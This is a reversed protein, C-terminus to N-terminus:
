DAFCIARQKVSDAHLHLVHQGPLDAADIVWLAPAFEASKPLLQELRNPARALLAEALRNGPKDPFIALYLMDLEVLDNFFHTGLSVDPILGEHMVALECIVAVNRIEPFTVPVGFSPSTTGWRGPGILLTAQESVGPLQNLRGVLRAITYRKGNPLRAYVSPVVYVIRTIPLLRSQGIIPGSSELYLKDDPLETPPGEIHLGHKSRVQFPRCQLLNIRLDRQPTFNVTFEVDVPNDYATQLTRLMDRMDAPFSGKLLRDFTLVWPFIELGPQAAARERLADDQTAILDLPLDPAARVVQEFPVALHRNQDLDLVDLNRQAYQRVMGPDANLRKDPANLAVLRTYDNEIRDVARTGLGSVLRLFGAQPDIEKDWVYPNFSYAVGAIDPFFYRGHMAGSVRQVLLAMQEDQELLGRHQRYILADRSLASAYIRRVADMFAELREALPGQNPCFVSEYKGSFANGYNDELLSSSRVIIPSQGFYTLMERFQNVLYQPFEGYLLAQQGQELGEFAHDPDRQTRRSWWCGNQVLYTYFVDSGVFFSDHQELRDAWAPNAKVLMARALLMGLTKGGILGSGIMRSLVNILDDLTFYRQALRTYREDRTIAMRLLRNFCDEAERHTLKGSNVDALTEQAHIVTRRWVGPRHLSFELWSQPLNAMLETLTASSTVPKFSDDEWSHLMFMTPSYRNMVKIPQVYLQAKNRYVELIVQATKTINEVTRQMHRNRIMAFYAITEQQRLFPCVIMFFNALMQDSSWDVALESLCDFLFYAGRGAAEADDLIQLVFQEFGEEPQLHCVRINPGTLLPEDHDSFRFYVLPAHHKAAEAALPLLFPTFNAMSSLQMVVNDGLRLGHITQDLGPVGTSRIADPVTM